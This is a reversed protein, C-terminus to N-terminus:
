KGASKSKLARFRADFDVPSLHLPPYGANSVLQSVTQRSYPYIIGPCFSELIQELENGEYGSIKFEGTYTNELKFIEDKAIKVAVKVMLKVEFRGDGLDKSKVDLDLDAAPQWEQTMMHVPLVAKFDAATCWISQILFEKTVNSM